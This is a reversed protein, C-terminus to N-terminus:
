MQKETVTYKVLQGFFYLIVKFSVIKIM